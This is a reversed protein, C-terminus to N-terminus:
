GRITSNKIAFDGPLIAGPLAVVVRDGQKHNKAGCVIQHVKGGGTSVQCLTLRDAGPHQGKELIHGTVVNKFDKARNTISEVELGAATLIQALAEPKELYQKVDIYDDLWSLSIKM